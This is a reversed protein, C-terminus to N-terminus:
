PIQQIKNDWYKRAKIQYYVIEGDPYHTAMVNEEKEKNYKQGEACCALVNFVISIVLVVSVCIMFIGENDLEYNNQTSM